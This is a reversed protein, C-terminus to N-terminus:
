ECDGYRKRKVSCDLIQPELSCVDCSNQYVYHVNADRTCVEPPPAPPVTRGFNLTRLVSISVEGGLIEHAAVTNEVM